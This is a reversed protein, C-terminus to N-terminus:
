SLLLLSIFFDTLSNSSFHLGNGVMHPLYQRAIEESQRMLENVHEVGYVRGKAGVMLAMAVTIYGSGSGIDLARM